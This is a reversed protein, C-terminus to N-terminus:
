PRRTRRLPQDGQKVKFYMISLLVAVNMVECSVLNLLMPNDRTILVTTLIRVAANYTGIFWTLASVSGATHHRWITILQNVKSWLLMPTTSSILFLKVYESFLDACMAIFFSTYLVYFPISRFEMLGRNYAILLILAFDQLVTVNSEFFTHPPYGKSFQYTLMITNALFEVIVSKLSISLTSGSTVIVKIQPLKCVLTTVLVSSSLLQNFALLRGESSRMSSAVEEGSDDFAEYM